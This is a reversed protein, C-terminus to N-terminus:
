VITSLAAVSSFCSSLSRSLSLSRSSINWLLCSSSSSAIHRMSSICFFQSDTSKPLVYIREVFIPSARFCGHRFEPLQHLARVSFVQVQNLVELFDQGFHLWHASTFFVLRSSSPCLVFILILSYRLGSNRSLISPMTYRTASHIETFSTFANCLAQVSTEM